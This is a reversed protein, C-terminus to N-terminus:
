LSPPSILSVVGEEQFIWGCANRFPDLIGKAVPIILGVGAM